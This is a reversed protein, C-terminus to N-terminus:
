SLLTEFIPVFLFLGISKMRFFALPFDGSPLDKYLTHANEISVYNMCKMTRLALIDKVFSRYEDLSFLSKTFFLKLNM